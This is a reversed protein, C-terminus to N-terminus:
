PDERRSFVRWTGFIFMVQLGLMCPAKVCTSKQEGHSLKTKGDQSFHNNNFQPLCVRLIGLVDDEDAKDDEDDDERKM